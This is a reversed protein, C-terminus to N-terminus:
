FADFVAHCYAFLYGPFIGLLLVLVGNCFLLASQVRSFASALMLNGDERQEFYMFRVVRLYYYSGIISFIIATVALMIWGQEILAELLGLKAIFGVLPPVGMLSFMTMLLVWARKPSRVGLGKLDDMTDLEEGPMACACLVGFAALNTVVYTVIYFLSAAYGDKTHSIIGLLAYGGHAISSYAFLRKIKTQVIAAINGIAMSLIAIVVLLPQGDASMGAFSDLMLRVLMAFVACKPLTAIFTAVSTPAGAYVDPVWPHFPAVGLKFGLGAIIFVLAVLAIMSHTGALQLTNHIHTFDLHRVVGFLLSFGYLLMCTALAGMIFYKLAAEACHCPHRWLAVLAYSPLSLLEVALFTMMMSHAGVLLLMGVTALLFLSLFETAAIRRDTNYTHAYTLVVMAGLMLFFKLFVALRDLVITQNFFYLPHTFDATNAILMLALIAFLVGSNALVHLRNSCRPFFAGVLLVVAAFVALIIEPAIACLGQLTIM